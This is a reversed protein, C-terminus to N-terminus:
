VLWRTDGPRRPMGATATGVERSAAKTDMSTDMSTDMGTSM